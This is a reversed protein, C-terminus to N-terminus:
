AEFRLFTPSNRGTDVFVPHFFVLGLRPLRNTTQPSITKRELLLDVSLSDAHDKMTATADHRLHSSRSFVAGAVVTKIFSPRMPHAAFVLVPPFDSPLGHHSLRYAKELSFHNRSPHPNNRVSDTSNLRSKQIPFGRSISDSSPNGM